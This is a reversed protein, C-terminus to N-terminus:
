YNESQTQPLWNRYKISVEQTLLIADYLSESLPKTSTKNPNKIKNHNPKTQKPQPQPLPPNHHKQRMYKSRTHKFNAKFHIILYVKFGESDPPQNQICNNESPQRPSRIQWGTVYPWHQLQALAACQQKFSDRSSCREHHSTPSLASFYSGGLGALGNWSIHNTPKM